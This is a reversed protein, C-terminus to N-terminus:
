SLQYYCNYINDQIKYIIRKLFKVVRKRLWRIVLQLYLLKFKAWTIKLIMKQLFVSQIPYFTSTILYLMFITYVYLRLPSM